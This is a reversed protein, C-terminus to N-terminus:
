TFMGFLTIGLEDYTDNSGNEHLFKLLQDLQQSTISVNSDRNQM